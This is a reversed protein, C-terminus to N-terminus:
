GQGQRDRFRFPNSVVSICHDRLSESRRLIVQTIMILVTAARHTALMAIASNPTYRKLGNCICFRFASAFTKPVVLVAANANLSWFDAPSTRWASAALGFIRPATM